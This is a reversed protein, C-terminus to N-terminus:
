PQAGKGIAAAACVIARRTAALPDGNHKCSEEIGGPAMALSIKDLAMPHPAVGVCMELKVSLRFAEGDDELPDWYSPAEDPSNSTAYPIEVSDTVGEEITFSTTEWELGLGAAKAALELLEKDTM